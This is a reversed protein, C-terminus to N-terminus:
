QIFERVEVAQANANSSWIYVDGVYPVDCVYTGGAAIAIFRKTANAPTDFDIYVPANGGNTAAFTQRSANAALARYTNAPATPSFAAASCTTPVSDLVPRDAIATPLDNYLPMITKIEPHIIAQSKPHYARGV